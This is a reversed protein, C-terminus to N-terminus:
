FFCVVITPMISGDVVRLGSVGYVRLRHDVVAKHAFFQFILLPHVYYFRLYECTADHPPGM